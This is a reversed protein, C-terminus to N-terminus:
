CFVRESYALYQEQGLQCGLVGSNRFTGCRCYAVMRHEAVFRFDRSFVRSKALELLKM